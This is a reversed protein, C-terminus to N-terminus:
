AVDSKLYSEFFARIDQRQKIKTKREDKCFRGAARPRIKKKTARDILIVKERGGIIFIKIQRGQQHFANRKNRNLGLKFSQM